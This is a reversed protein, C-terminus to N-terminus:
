GVTLRTLVTETGIEPRYLLYLNSAAAVPIEFEVSGSRSAHASISGYFNGSSSNGQQGFADGGAGILQFFAAKNQIVKGSANRVM